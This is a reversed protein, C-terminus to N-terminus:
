LGTNKRYASLRALYKSYDIQNLFTRGIGGVDSSSSVGLNSNEELQMLSAIELCVLKFIEPVKLVVEGSGIDTESYEEEVKFGLYENIVSGASGIYIERLDKDEEPYKGSFTSLEEKTILM